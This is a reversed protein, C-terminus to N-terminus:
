RMSSITSYYKLLRRPSQTLWSAILRSQLIWVLGPSPWPVGLSILALNRRSRRDSYSPVNSNWTSSSQKKYTLWVSAGHATMKSSPNYPEFLVTKSRSSKVCGSTAITTWSKRKSTNKSSASPKSDEWMAESSRAQSSCRSWRVKSSRWSTDITKMSSKLQWTTSYLLRKRISIPRNASCARTM